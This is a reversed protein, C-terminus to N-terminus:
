QPYDANLCRQAAAKPVLNVARSSDKRTYYGTDEPNPSGIDLTVTGTDGGKKYVWTLTMSPSSLGYSGLEEDSAKYAACSSITLGSVADALNNLSAPDPLRNSEDEASDRYWATINQEDVTKKCFRRSVGDKTVTIEQLDAGTVYPLSETEVFDYLGKDATQPLYSNITYIQGSGDISAYYQAPAPSQTSGSQTSGADGTGPVPDGILLTQATGDSSVIHFLLSPSDLGYAGPEDNGELRREAKLHSLTDALTTLSYQRIPCDNDGKYYWTGEEQVFAPNRGNKEWSISSLGDIDTIYVQSNDQNEKDKEAGSNQQWTIIGYAACLLVLVGLAPLIPHIQKKM